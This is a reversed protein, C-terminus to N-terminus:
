DKFFQEVFRKILTVTIIVIFVYALIKEVLNDTEYCLFAFLFILPVLILNEKLYRMFRFKLIAKKKFRKRLETELRLTFVYDLIGLNEPYLYICPIDNDAYIRMKEKYRERDEKTSNWRGFFELYCNYEPLYFDAIRYKKKDNYLGVIPKEMKFSIHNKKLYKAIFSEGESAFFNNNVFEAAIKDKM